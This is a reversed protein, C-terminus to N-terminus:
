AVLESGQKEEKVYGQVWSPREERSLRPFLSAKLGFYVCRTDLHNRESYRLASYLAYYIVEM